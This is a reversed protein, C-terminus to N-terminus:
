RHEAAMEPTKGSDRYAVEQQRRCARRGATEIRKLRRYISADRVTVWEDEDEFAGEAIYHALHGKPAAKKRHSTSRRYRVREVAAGPHAHDRSPCREGLFHRRRTKTRCYSSRACSLVAHEMAFLFLRQVLLVQIRVWILALSRARAADRLAIRQWLDALLRTYSLIGFSARKASSARCVPRGLQDPGVKSCGLTKRKRLLM